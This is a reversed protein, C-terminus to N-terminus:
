VSRGCNLFDKAFPHDIGVKRLEPTVGPKVTWTDRSTTV